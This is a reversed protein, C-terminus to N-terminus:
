NKDKKPPLNIKQKSNRLLQRHIAPGEGPDSFNAGVGKKSSFGKSASHEFFGHLAKQNFDIEVTVDTAVRSVEKAAGNCKPLEGQCHM